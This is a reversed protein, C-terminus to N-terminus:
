PTPCASQDAKLTISISSSKSGNKKVATFTGDGLSSDDSRHLPALVFGNKKTKYGHLTVIKQGDLKWTISYKLGKKAPKAKGIAYIHTVSDDPCYKFTGHNAVNIPAGQSNVIVQWSKLTVKVPAAKGQVTVPVAAGLALVAVLTLTRRM